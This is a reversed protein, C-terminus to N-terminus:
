TKGTGNTGLSVRRLASLTREVYERQEDECMKDFEGKDILLHWSILEGQGLPCFEKDAITLTNDYMEELVKCQNTTFMDGLEQGLTEKPEQNKSASEYLGMVIISGTFFWLIGFVAFRVFSELSFQLIFAEMAEMGALLFVSNSGWLFFVKLGKRM